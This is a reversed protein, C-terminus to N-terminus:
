VKPMMSAALEIITGMKSVGRVKVILDLVSGISPDLILSEARDALEQQWKVFEFCTLLHRPNEFVMVIMALGRVRSVQLFAIQGGAELFRIESRPGIREFRLWPEFPELLKHFEENDHVELGGAVAIGECPVHNIISLADAQARELGNAVFEEFSVITDLFDQFAAVKEWRSRAFVQLPTPLTDDYSASSKNFYRIFRERSEYRTIPKQIIPAM